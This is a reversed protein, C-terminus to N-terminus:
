DAIELIAAWVPGTAEIAVSEAELGAEKAIRAGENTVRGADEAGARHLEVSKIM